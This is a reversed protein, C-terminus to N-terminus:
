PARRIPTRITARSALAALTLDEYSPGKGGFGGGIYRSLVRVQDKGVGLTEALLDGLLDCRIGL